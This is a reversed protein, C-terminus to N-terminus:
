LCLHCSIQSHGCNSVRKSGPQTFRSDDAEVAYMELDSNSDITIMQSLMLATVIISFNDIPRLIRSIPVHLPFSYGITYPVLDVIWFGCDLIWLRLGPKLGEWGWRQTVIYVLM